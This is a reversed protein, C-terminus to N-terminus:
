QYFYRFVLFYNFKLFNWKFHFAAFCKLLSLCRAVKLFDNLRWWGGVGGSLIKSLRQFLIVNIVSIYLCKNEFHELFTTRPRWSISCHLHDEQCWVSVYKSSFKYVSLAKQSDKPLMNNGTEFSNLNM